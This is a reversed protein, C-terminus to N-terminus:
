KQPQKFIFCFQINIPVPTCMYTCTSKCVACLILRCYRSGFQGSAGKFRRGMLYAGGRAVKPDSSDSRSRVPPMLVCHVIYFVFFSLSTCHWLQGGSGSKVTEVTCFTSALLADQRSTHLSHFRSECQRLWRWVSGAADSTQPELSNTQAAASNGYYCVKNKGGVAESPLLAKM